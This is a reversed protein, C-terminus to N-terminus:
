DLAFGRLRISQAEFAGIVVPLKREGDKESLLLAYAGNTNQSYSIRDITLRILSM